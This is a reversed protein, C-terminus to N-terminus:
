TFYSEPAMVYECLLGIVFDVYFRTAADLAM